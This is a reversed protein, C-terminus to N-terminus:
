VSVGYNELHKLSGLDYAAAYAYYGGNEIESHAGTEYVYIQYAKSEYKQEYDVTSFGKKSEQYTPTLEKIIEAPANHAASWVREGESFQTAICNDPLLEGLISKATTPVKEPVGMREIIGKVFSPSRYIRKAIESITDGELYDQAIQKIEEKTAGKGRNQQKRKETFAKRELYNDIINQLRTTNYSINLIECAEKKTIPKTESSSPHLLNIVKQINGATM